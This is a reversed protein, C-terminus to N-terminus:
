EKNKTDPSILATQLFQIAQDLALNVTSTCITPSLGCRKRLQWRTPLLKEQLYQHSIWHIRRVAFAEHSELLPELVRKTEALRSLDKQLSGNRLGMEVAISNITVRVPKRDPNGVRQAALVAQQSLNADRRQWDVQRKSRKVPTRGIPRHQSLWQHDLRYLTQYVDNFDARLEALSANPRSVLAAAWLERLVSIHPQNNSSTQSITKSSNGESRLSLGLRTAHNKFTELHVGLHAAMERQSLGSAAWLERLKSEWLTGYSVVKSFRYRDAYSSDPGIRSYTFGCSCTFTGLPKRPRRRTFGLKLETIQPQQYHLCVPNLCPWPPEGFPKSNIQELFFQDATKGLFQILLLHRIAPQVQNSQAIRALWNRPHRGDLECGLAELFGSTFRERFSETLQVIRVSGTLTALEQQSLITLYRQRLSALDSQLPNQLLWASNQALQLLDLHVYNDRELSRAANQCQSKEASHFQSSHGIGVNSDELWIAHVPCVLVGPLQHTRHWYAEGIVARDHILCLPCYRLFFPRAIGSAVVGLSLHVGSKRTDAMGRRIADYRESPLFPAYYPLLTHQNVFQTITFRHGAPLMSVLTLLQGPLDVVAKPRAQGFIQRIISSESPYRMHDALRALISYLLEDQGPEPFYGLM